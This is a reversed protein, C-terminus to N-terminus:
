EKKITVAPNANAARWSQITVTAMTVLAVIVFAVIFVWWHLPTKYAFNELWKKLVFYSIPLAIVFCITVTRLYNNSFLKLIEGTTSGFVKRVGIEKRRYESDFMVLGLVGMLSLVVALIGFLIVMSRLNAEQQYLHNIIDDFFEIEAPYLPDIDALTKRIHRMADDVNTGAKLRIYSVPLNWMKNSSYFAINNEGQRLSTIKLEDTFGIINGPYEGYYNFQGLEFGINNKAASNFIFSPTNSEGDAPLFNRGEIVHIGMTPLFNYSVDIMFYSYDEGEYNLSYTSYNDLSALKQSAFAVDEIGSYTKLEEAYTKGQQSATKRNLEVVLIQDKDFGLSYQRMYRNQIQVFIAVIIIAISVVFQFGVLFARFRRGKPSLGFNGKLVLAPPFSTIYRSPYLSAIVGTFLAIIGTLIIIGWNQSVRLDADIFPLISSDSIMYVILIAILWSIACIIMAEVILSIRIATDTAGFVKQTNISKIRVPTLSTSFNTYNIGAIILILLALGILLASFEANGSKAVMSEHSEDHYYIDTLPMLRIKENPRDINNFDFHSNFNDTVDAASKADDLLLYCIFNSRSFDTKDSEDIATYISNGLQTNDPFDRYVAGVVLNTLLGTTDNCNKTWICEKWHLLKGIASEDGFMKVAMSEPIIVKEPYRLCNVDGEIIPFDFVKIMDPHCTVVNEIFGAKENGKDVTFYIDGIVKNVITGAEIHPSSTIVEEVFGRPLITSFVGTTETLNVRFVRDATPHCRDFTREYNVQSMIIIFAAFAASLGLINLIGAMKYRRLISLLNRIITKMRNNKENGITSVIHVDDRRIKNIINTPTRVVM